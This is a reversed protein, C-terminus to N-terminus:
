PKISALLAKWYKFKKEVIAGNKIWASGELGKTKSISTELKRTLTTSECSPSSLRKWRTRKHKQLNKKVFILKFIWSLFIIAMTSAELLPRWKSLLAWCSIVTYKFWLFKYYKMVIRTKFWCSAWHANDKDRNWNTMVCWKPVLLPFMICQGMAWVKHRLFSIISIFLLTIDNDFRSM